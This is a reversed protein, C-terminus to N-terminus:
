HALKLAMLFFFQWHIQLFRLARLFGSAYVAGLRLVQERQLLGCLMHTHMSQLSDACLIAEFPSTCIKFPHNHLKAKFKDRNLIAMFLNYQFQRRDMEEETKPFLMQDGSCTGSLFNPNLRREILLEASNTGYSAVAAANRTIEEIFQLAIAHVRPSLASDSDSAM